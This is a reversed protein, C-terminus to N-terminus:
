KEEFKKNILNSILDIISSDFKNYNTFFNRYKLFCKLDNNEEFILKLENIFSNNNIKKEIEGLTSKIEIKKDNLLYVSYIKFNAQEKEDYIILILKLDKNEKSFM